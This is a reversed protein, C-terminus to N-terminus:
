TKLEIAQLSTHLFEARRRAIDSLDLVNEKLAHVLHARQCKFFIENLKNDSIGSVWGVDIGLKIMSLANLAEKTQLQYSHMLLGYARSVLDKIAPNNEQQLHTRMTKESVMLKMATSHVSHLINEETLGLTCNNSLVVLDGILEDLNGQMGAATVGEEKQKILAESLQGTHILAPLHLYTLIVLGTGCFLPDSTLYGFKSSFAYDLSSGIANELKTLLNWTNEWDDKCDILVLQLHDGINILALFRGTNDVIFGQGALTNQLNESCIFHEYLFEKDLASVDEAKLLQPQVLDPAKLLATKLAELARESQPKEMKPPFFFNNLNRRLVFASAPWIPNSEKEWPVHELLSPPLDAKEKM